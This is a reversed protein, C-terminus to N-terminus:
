SILSQMILMTLGNRCVATLRHHLIGNERQTSTHLWKLTGDEKYRIDFHVGAELLQKMSIVSM